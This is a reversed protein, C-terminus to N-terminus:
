FIIENFDALHIELWSSELRIDLDIKLYLIDSFVIIAVKIMMTWSSVLSLLFREAISSSISMLFIMNQVSFVGLISM